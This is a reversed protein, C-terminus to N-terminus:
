KVDFAASILAKTYTSRPKDLLELCNGSEVIEGDKMVLITHSITKIVRLDHSIFIYSISCKKQISKLLHLIESQTSLDLASTPEDFIIMNPSLALARAISIRQRQGGSFEHPYRDATIPELGVDKLVQEVIKRREKKNAGVSHARLGEAIIDEVTMRPNLSSFPDQFVMQIKKRLPRLNANKWSQINQNAFFIDGTSKILRLFALALTTKGSGSEGVIGLSHGSKLDFNANKVATIVEKSQGFFGKKVPFSVNLNKVAAIVPAKNSVPVPDGSPFSALLHKTYSHKPASFIKSVLGNEAIKGDKMVAVSDAINRVITLDHTILLIAMGLKKQLKKLLLLIKAQVTVDLATTPEDAILIKPSNALAMAIMVRQRQGGSLEHPFAHLRNKLMSLGVMELLEQTRSKIEKNPRANHLTIAENIQRGISHLPNLATMPEQFIMSIKNGRVSRLSDESEKLLDRNEFLVQGKLYHAPPSELLKLISLATVSKGSGSQGVLALIEGKNLKLSVDKTARIERAKGGSVSSNRFSVSLNKIELIPVATM